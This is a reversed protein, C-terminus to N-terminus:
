ATKPQLINDFEGETYGLFREWRVGEANELSPFCDRLIECLYRAKMNLHPAEFCYDLLFDAMFLHEMIRARDECPLTRSYADIFWVRSLDSEGALTYKTDSIEKGNKDLYANYFGKSNPVFDLWNALYPIGTTEETYKIREEAAHMIEHPVMNLIDTAFRDTNYVIVIEDDERYTIASVNGLIKSSTNFLSTCLYMSVKNIGPAKLEKLFGDPYLDLVNSLARVSDFVTEDGKEAHATYYENNFDNGDPGYYLDIGTKEAINDAAKETAEGLDNYDAYQYTFATKKFAALDFAYFTPAVGYTAAAMIVTGNEAIAAGCIYMDRDILFDLPMDVRTKDYFDYLSLTADGFVVSTLYLSGLTSLVAEEESGGYGYIIYSSLGGDENPRIHYSDYPAKKIHFGTGSPIYDRATPDEVCVNKTVDFFIVGEKGSDFVEFEAVNGNVGLFALSSGPLKTTVSVETELERVTIEDSNEMIHALYKGDGALFTIGSAGELYPGYVVPEGGSIGNIEVMLRSPDLVSFADDGAFAVARYGDYYYAALVFADSLRVVTVTMAGDDLYEIALMYDGRVIPYGSASERDSAYLTYVGNVDTQKYESVDFNLFEPAATFVTKKLGLKEADTPEPPDVSSGNGSNVDSSAGSPVDSSPLVSENGIVDCATATLLLLALLLVAVRKFLKEM